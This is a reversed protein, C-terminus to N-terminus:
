RISRCASASSRRWRAMSAKPSAARQGRGLCLRFVEAAARRHRAADLQRLSGAAANRPNAFTPKGAAAQRANIAAFDEHAYLDRRASGAAGARGAAAEPDGRRDERQRHRGRRRLRRRADGRQVLEGSQYLLSCSLGDIKPEAVVALPADEGMRPVAARPRLVGGVEEDAFINGLSLMPVVHRSRPSNRRRRRASRAGIARRDTRSPDEGAGRLAAAARRLRRRLDSPADEGHYRRDHEAIERRLRAHEARAAELDSPKPKAPM